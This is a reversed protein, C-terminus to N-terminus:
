QVFVTVLVRWVGGVGHLGVESAVDVNLIEIRM